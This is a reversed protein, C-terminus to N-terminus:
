AITIVLVVVMADHMISMELLLPWTCQQAHLCTPPRLSLSRHATTLDSWLGVVHNNM